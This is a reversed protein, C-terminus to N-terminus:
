AEEHPMTPSKPPENDLMDYSRVERMLGTHHDWSVVPFGPVGTERM